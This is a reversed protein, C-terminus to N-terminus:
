PRNRGAKLKNVMSAPFQGTNTAEFDSLRVRCAPAARTHIRAPFGHNAPVSGRGSGFGAPILRLFWSTAIKAALARSNCLAAAIAVRM